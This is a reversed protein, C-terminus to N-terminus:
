IETLHREGESEEVLSTEFVASVYLCYIRLPCTFPCIFPLHTSHCTSPLYISRGISLFFKTRIDTIGCM